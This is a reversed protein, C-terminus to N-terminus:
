LSMDNIYLRLRMIRCCKLKEAQRYHPHLYHRQSHHYPCNQNRQLGHHSRRHAGV